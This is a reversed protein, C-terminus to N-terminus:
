NKALSEIENLEKICQHIAASDNKKVAENMRKKISQIKSKYISDPEDRIDNDIGVFSTLSKELMKVALDKIPEFENM